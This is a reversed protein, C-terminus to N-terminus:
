FSKRLGSLMACIENIRQRMSFLIGDDIYGLENSIILQNMLEVASGYAISIFHQKEKTSHRVSGEAINSAISISCRKMQSILNYKEQSPFGESLVAKYLYTVLEKSKNWVKLKEFGFIITSKNM